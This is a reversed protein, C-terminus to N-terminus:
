GRSKRTAAEPASIRLSREWRPSLLVQATRGAVAFGVAGSVVLTVVIAAGESAIAAGLGGVAVVLPIFLLPLHRMLLAGGAEVHELRLVGLQLSLFTLLMGALNGSLPLHLHDVLAHGIWSMAALLAIQLGFRVPTRIAVGIGAPDFAIEASGLKM